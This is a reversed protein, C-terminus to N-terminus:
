SLPVIHKAQLLLKQAVHEVFAVVQESLQLESQAVHLVVPEQM